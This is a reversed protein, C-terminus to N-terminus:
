AAVGGAAQRGKAMYLAVQSSVAGASYFFLINYFQLGRFIESETVNSILLMIFIACHMASEERDFLMLRGLSRAHWAFTALALGLGVIGLENLLDLYGDHSQLPIWFMADIVYQSPSGEGLWFGGYGIGLLPHRAVELMVLQWIDTRGTLDADKGFLGGISGAIDDWGPLHGTFVTFVHVLLLLLTMGCLGIVWWPHRMTVYPRRLVMYLGGGITMVALSTSSKAMVVMFMCFLMGLVCLWRPFTRGDVTERLWLLSCMGAVAGTTNKQTMVGRWAGGLDYDIGIRPNVVVMVLSALLLATLTAMLLRLLQRSGGVPPGVALGVVLFGGLQVVRKVTVVPYPSWLMSIACWAVLAILFPNSERLRFRTWEMHRWALWAGGAYVAGFQLQLALNGQTFNSDADVDSFNLGPPLLSFTFSVVVLLRILWGEYDIRGRPLHEAATNM